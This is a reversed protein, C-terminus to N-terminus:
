RLDDFSDIGFLMISLEEIAKTIDRSVTSREVGIDYALESQTIQTPEIYLRRIVNYRREAAYGEIKSLEGYAKFINDFYVLMKRTRAKYKMLSHLNLDAPDYIVGEYDKLEDVVSECHIKLKRYNKLLLSTNRLRWDKHQKKTLKNQKDTERIVTEVILDMLEKSSM